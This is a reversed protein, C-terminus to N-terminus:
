ETREVDTDLFSSEESVESDIIWLKNAGLLEIECDYKQPLLSLVDVNTTYHVTAKKREIVEIKSSTNRGKSWIRDM